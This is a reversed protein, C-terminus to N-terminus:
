LNHKTLQFVLKTNLIQHEYDFDVNDTEDNKNFHEEDLSYLKEDIFNHYYEYFDCSHSNMHNNQCNDDIEYIYGKFIRRKLEENEV